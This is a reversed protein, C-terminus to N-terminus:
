AFPNQRHAIFEPSTKTFHCPFSRFRFFAAATAQQEAQSGGGMRGKQTTASFSFFRFLFVSPCFVFLCPLFCPLFCSLVFSLFSFLLFSTQLKQRRTHGRKNAKKKTQERKNERKQQREKKSEYKAAGGRGGTRGQTSENAAEGQIKTTM